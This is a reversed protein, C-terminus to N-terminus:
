KPRRYDVLPCDPLGFEKLLSKAFAQVEVIQAGPNEKLYNRWADNYPGGRFGRPNIGSEVRVTFAHYDLGIDEWRDKFAQPFIHHLETAAQKGGSAEEGDPGAVAGVTNEGASEYANQVGANIASANGAMHYTQQSAIVSNVGGEDDGSTLDGLEASQAGASSALTPTGPKLTM